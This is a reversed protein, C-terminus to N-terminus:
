KLMWEVDAGAKYCTDAIYDAEELTFKPSVVFTLDKLEDRYLEKRDGAQNTINSSLAKARSWNKDERLEIGEDTCKYLDPRQSGKESHQADRYGDEGQIFSRQTEFERHRVEDVMEVQRWSRETPSTFLAEIEANTLGAKKYQEVIDVPIDTLEEEQIDEVETTIDENEVVDDVEEMLGIDVSEESTDEDEAEEFDGLEVSIEDSEIDAFFESDAVDDVSDSESEEVGDVCDDDFDFDYTDSM